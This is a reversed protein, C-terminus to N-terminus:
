RPEGDHRSGDEGDKSEEPYPSREIRAQEERLTVQERHRTQVERRRLRIEERLVWQRQVTVVEEYVPIVLVDGEERPPAPAEVVRNIAIHEIDVEDHLMPEDITEVHERVTKRVRVAGTEVRRKGVHLEEQTVPIAAPPEREPM